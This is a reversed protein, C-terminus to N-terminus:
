VVERKIGCTLEGVSIGNANAPYPTFGTVTIYEVAGGATNDAKLTRRIADAHRKVKLMAREPKGDKCAIIIKIIEVFEDSSNTLNKIDTHENFLNYRPFRDSDYVDFKDTVLERPSVITVGDTVETNVAVVYTSINNALFTKIDNLAKEFILAM